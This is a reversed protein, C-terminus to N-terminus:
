TGLLLELANSFEYVAGDPVISQVYLTLAAGGGGPVPLSLAGTGDTSPGNVLLLYPTPVLMGGKVFTPNYVDGIVLFVPANPAAGSLEYTASSGPQTLVGCLSAVINGPGSFGLDTACDEFTVSLSMSDIFAEQGSREGYILVSLMGGADIYHAIDARLHTELIGDRNGAFNAAYSNQNLGGLGDSWNGATENWIYMELQHCNDGYGEFRIGIDRISAPSEAIQFDFIHTNEYAGGPNPSTYRNPDLDGSTADSAAMQAYAGASVETSAAAPHRVGNLNNWSQTRYGWAWKDVGAGSGFDYVTLADDTIEFAAESVAVDTNTDADSATVSIMADTSMLAPVTWDFHGDNPEGTALVHPFTAGGDTSLALDVNMVEVDDTAAWRLDHTTGAVLLEDGDPTIAHASPNPDTYRPKQMVICHIAGSAPIISYCDIPIIEVGPGAAAQYADVSRSDSGGYSGNGSVYSPIFIRDNVRFANAYTYHTNGVNWAPVRTVTFGLSEMYPVANNTVQIATANSGPLFESIIVDDEDVIYMWMDIHGTGDVSSPLRPLIHLTDIGQYSNYLTELESVSHGPNDQHILSTVYGSRNPGPQFNGGSYYLGMPYASEGFTEEALMTPIFNDKPRQPYYHSDAIAQAGNQWIFHPGYDRLWISDSGIISFEVRALDAGANTFQTVATAQQAASTVVVYAKEDTAPDGTLKAVCETVVSNWGAGFRFIVGDCPSYEPPSEILGSTPQTDQWQSLQVAYPVLKQHPDDPPSGGERWRPLPSDPGPTWVEPADATQAEAPLSVLVLSCTTLLVLSWRM